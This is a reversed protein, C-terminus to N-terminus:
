GPPPESISSSSSLSPLTTSVSSSDSESLKASDSDDSSLSPTKALIRLAPKFVAGVGAATPLAIAALLAAAASAGHRM